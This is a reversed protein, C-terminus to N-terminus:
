QSEKLLSISICHGNSAAVLRSCVLRCWEAFMIISLIEYQQYTFVLKYDVKTEQPSHLTVCALCLDIYALTIGEM